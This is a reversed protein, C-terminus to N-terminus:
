LSAVIQGTASVNLHWSKQLVILKAFCDCLLTVAMQNLETLSFM